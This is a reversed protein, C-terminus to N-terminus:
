NAVHLQVHQVVQRFGHLRQVSFFHDAMGSFFFSIFWLEGQLDTRTECCNKMPLSCARKWPSTLTKTSCTESHSPPSSFLMRRLYHYQHLQKELPTCNWNKPTPNREKRKRRAQWLWALNNAFHPVLFPGVVCGPVQPPRGSVLNLPIPPALIPYGLFM